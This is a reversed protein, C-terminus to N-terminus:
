KWVGVTISQGPLSMTFANVKTIPIDGLHQPLVSNGQVPSAATLQYIQAVTFAKTHTLALGATHSVTDKNLLVAVVRNANGADQSAYAAAKAMDSSTASFSTDGFAAGANDYNRFIRFAGFMFTQASQLPWVNAAFVGERGFIGLSDAEAIAGSIHDEGGHNYESFALKTGPYQAAIKTMM